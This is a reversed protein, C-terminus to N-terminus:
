RFRGSLYLQPFLTVYAGFSIINKQYNAQRRYIDIPYSMTQFSYFSIGIPLSLGLPNLGEFGIMNLNGIIFDWYKFMGLMGLNFVVSFIVFRRAIKRNDIYKNVYYGNIYDVVTSLLMLVIYIPEGWGYFMLSLLFLFLNRFKLPSIYMILLVLPLYVFLFTLISFVM